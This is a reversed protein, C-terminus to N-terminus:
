EVTLFYTVAIDFSFPPGFSAGFELVHEGVAQGPLMVWIGDSIAPDRDGADYGFQNLLSGEPVEMVFAPSQTRVILHHYECPVGDLSCTVSTVNDISYESMPRLEDETTGDEPAWFVANAIPFFLAKGEPVVCERTTEGGMNGALFLVKGNQGLVCDTEGEAFIPSEEMPYHFMWNWWEGSWEGVTRGYLKPDHQAWAPAAAVLGLLSIMLAACWVRRGCWKVTKKMTKRRRCDNIPFGM